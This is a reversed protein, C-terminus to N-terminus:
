KVIRKKSFREGFFVNSFCTVSVQAKENREEKEHIIEQSKLQVLLAFVKERWKTLLSDGQSNDGKTFKTQFKILETEQISLIENM